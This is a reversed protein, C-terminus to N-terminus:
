VIVEPVKAHMLGKIWMLKINVVSWSIWMVQGMGFWVQPFYHKSNLFMGFTVYRTLSSILFQVYLERNNEVSHRGWECKFSFHGM